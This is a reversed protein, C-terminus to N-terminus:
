LDFALVTVDDSYTGGSFVALATKLKSMFDEASRSQLLVSEVRETGFLEGVNNKCETVGDTLLVLTDGRRFPLAREFYKVDDFWNSIPPSAAEIEHIGEANKLLIPSNHGAFAYYLLGAERDIRAAAVTIYSKEDQGVENFKANLKELAVGLDPESRDLAAKAFASLMGASLGKGSVDAIIAYAQGDLEYVDVLDGGVELCPVYTLAYPVGAAQKGAPLLRQQVKQASLMEREIEAQYSTGAVALYLGEKDTPPYFKVGVSLTNTQAGGALRTHIEETQKAHEKVTRNMGRWLACYKCAPYAGCDKGESCSLVESLTGKQKKRDVFFARCFAANVYQIRLSKDFAMVGEPLRELVKKYLSGFM